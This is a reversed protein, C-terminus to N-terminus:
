PAVGRKAANFHSLAALEHEFSEQLLGDARIQHSADGTELWLLYERVSDAQSMTSLRFLGVSSAFSEPADLGDYRSVIEELDAVHTRTYEIFEQQTTDGEELIIRQSEFSEQADKLDEQIQQLQDGFIKGRIRVQEQNYSYVIAASLITAAVIGVLISQRTKKKM